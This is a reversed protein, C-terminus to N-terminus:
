PLPAALSSTPPGGPISPSRPGVCVMHDIPILGHHEQWRRAAEDADPVLPVCWDTSERGPALIAADVRRERLLEAVGIDPEAHEVNPPDEYEAVHSGETTVWTVDGAAM